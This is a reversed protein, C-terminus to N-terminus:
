DAARLVVARERDFNVVMTAHDLDGDYSRTTSVPVAAILTETADGKLIFHRHSGFYASNVIKMDAGGPQANESIASVSVSEPRIAVLVKDGRNFQETGAPLEQNGFGRMAIQLTETGAGQVVGPILNMEGVFEAVERCTPRDYLETPASCQLVRGRDMVAIRDSLTLAEEQDHTVFVFTIGVERQLARLEIQMYQRLRKDLASLPEDLLLVKPKVVLARALAVRQKQGGSLQDPKRAGLDGLHVLELMEAVRHNLETRTLKMRSLGYGVNQAVTLHPFIAYSQFVMNTPRHYSPLDTVDSGDIYIRGSTPMDLGGLMNLLTTKGCGSPGLLSFFSGREIDLDIGDVATVSGYTKRIAQLSIYAADSM